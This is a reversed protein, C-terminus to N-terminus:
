FWTSKKYTAYADGFTEELVREEKRIRLLQVVLLIAWLGLWQSSRLAIVVGLFFAQAFLYVPHRIKSYLGSTVLQKAQASVSFSKGLQIRASVLLVYSPAMLAVAAITYFDLPYWRLIGYIVCPPVVISFGLVFRRLLSERM